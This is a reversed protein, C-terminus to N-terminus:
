TLEHLRTGILESAAFGPVASFIRHGTQKPVPRGAPRNGNIVSSTASSETLAALRPDTWLSPMM